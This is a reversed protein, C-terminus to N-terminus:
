GPSNMSEGPPLVLLTLCILPMGSDENNKNLGTFKPNRCATNVSLWAALHCVWTKCGPSKMSEEPPLVLVTLCILPM